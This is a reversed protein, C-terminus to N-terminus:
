DNDQLRYGVVVGRTPDNIDSSRFGVNYPINQFADYPFIDQQRAIETVNAPDNLDLTVLDVYSDAYLYNDRIALETNGPIQIFGVNVPATPNANDIVHVGQNIENLFVYDGYLYIRGLRDPPRAAQVAVASRLDAYSMYVPTAARKFEVCVGDEFRACGTGNGFDLTSGAAMLGSVTLFAPLLLRSSKTTAEKLVNRPLLICGLVHALLAGVLISLMDFLSVVGVFWEFLLLSAVVIPLGYRHERNCTAFVAHFMLVTAFAHTFSPISKGFVGGVLGTAGAVSQWWSYGLQWVPASLLQSYRFLGYYLIGVLLLAVSLGTAILRRYRFSFYCCNKQM